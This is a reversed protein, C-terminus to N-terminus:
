NSHYIQLNKETPQTKKIFIDNIPNIVVHFFFLDIFTFLYHSHVITQQIANKVQM